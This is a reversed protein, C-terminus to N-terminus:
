NAAHNPNASVIFRAFRLTFLRQFSIVVAPDPQLWGSGLRMPVGGPRPPPDDDERSTLATLTRLAHTRHYEVTVEPRM